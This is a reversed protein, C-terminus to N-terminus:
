AGGGNSDSPTRRAMSVGCHFCNNLGEEMSTDVHHRGDPSQACDTGQPKPIALTIGEGRMREMILRAAVRPTWDMDVSDSIAEELWDEIEQETM